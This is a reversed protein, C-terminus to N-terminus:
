IKFNLSFVICFNGPELHLVTYLKIIVSFSGILYIVVIKLLTLSKWSNILQAEWLFSVITSFFCQHFKRILVQSAKVLLEHLSYKWAFICIQAIRLKETFLAKFDLANNRGLLIFSSWWTLWNLRHLNKKSVISM